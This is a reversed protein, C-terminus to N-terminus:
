SPRRWALPRGAPPWRAAPPVPQDAFSFPGSRRWGLGAWAIWIVGINVALFTTVVPGFWNTPMPKWFALFATFWVCPALAVVPPIVAVGELLRRLWRRQTRAAAATWAASWLLCSAVVFVFFLFHGM